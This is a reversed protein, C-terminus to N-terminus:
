SYQPFIFYPNSTDQVCNSITPFTNMVEYGVERIGGISTGVESTWACFDETREFVTQDPADRYFSLSMETRGRQQDNAQRLQLNENKLREIEAKLQIVEINQQGMKSPVNLM